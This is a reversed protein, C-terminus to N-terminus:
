VPRNPLYKFRELANNYSFAENKSTPSEVVDITLLNNTDINNIDFNSNNSNMKNTNDEFEIRFDKVIKNSGSNTVNSNNNAAFNNYSAAFNNNSTVSNNNTIVNTKNEAVNNRAIDDYIIYYNIM